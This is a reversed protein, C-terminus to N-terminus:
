KYVPSNSAYLKKDSIIWMESLFVHKKTIKEINACVM